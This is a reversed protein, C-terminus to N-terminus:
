IDFEGFYDGADTLPFSSQPIWKGESTRKNVVFASNNGILEGKPNAMTFVFYKDTEYGHIPKAEKEAIAIGESRKM